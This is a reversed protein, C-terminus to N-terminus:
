PIKNVSIYYEEYLIILYRLLFVVNVAGVYWPNHEQTLKYMCSIPTCTYHLRSHGSQWTVHDFSNVPLDLWKSISVFDDGEKGHTDARAPVLGVERM